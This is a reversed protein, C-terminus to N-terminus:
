PKEKISTYQYELELVRTPTPEMPKMEVLRLEMHRGEEDHLHLGQDCQGRLCRQRASVIEALAGASQVWRSYEERTMGLYESLPVGDNPGNHWRDIADDIAEDPDKLEGRVIKGLVTV